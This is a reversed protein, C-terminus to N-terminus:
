QSYYYLYSFQRLVLNKLLIEIYFFLFIPIMAFFTGKTSIILALTLFGLFLNPLQKANKFQEIHLLLIPVLAYVLIEPKM